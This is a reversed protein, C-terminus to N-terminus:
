EMLAKFVKAV